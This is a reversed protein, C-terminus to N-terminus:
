DIIRIITTDHYIQPSTECNLATMLSTPRLLHIKRSTLQCCFFPVETKSDYPVSNQWGDCSSPFSGSSWLFHPEALMRIVGKLGHKSEQNISALIIFTYKKLWWSQSSKNQLWLLPYICCIEFLFSFSLLSIPM